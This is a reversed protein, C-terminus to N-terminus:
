GHEICNLFEASGPRSSSQRELDFWDVNTMDDTSMNSMMPAAVSATALPECWRGKFMNANWEVLRGSHPNHSSHGESICDVCIGAYPSQTNVGDFVGALDRMRRVFKGVDYADQVIECWVLTSKLTCACHCTDLLDFKSM